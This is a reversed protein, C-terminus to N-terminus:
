AAAVEDVRQYVHEDSLTADQLPLKTRAANAVCEALRADSM